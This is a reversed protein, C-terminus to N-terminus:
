DVRYIYYTVGDYEIDNEEGDYRALSNAVGDLDVVRRAVADEDILGNEKVTHVLEKEGFTDRYWEVADNYDDNLSDVLNYRLTDLDYEGDEDVDAIGRDECMEIVEDDSLDEVYFRNSEDKAEDFWDTNILDSDTLIQKQFDESFSELGLEYYLNLVDTKADEEANSYDDYVAYQEGDETEYSYCHEYIDYDLEQISDASVGLYEALAQKAEEM